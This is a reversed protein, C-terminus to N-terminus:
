LIASFKKAIDYRLSSIEVEYYPILNPNLKIVFNSLHPVNGRMLNVERFGRNKLDKSIESILLYNSGTKILEPHSANSWTYARKSDWLNIYASAADGSPTECIVMEGMGNRELLDIIRKFYQDSVPPKLNQKEFTMSFLSYYASLDFEKKIRLNTDTAKRIHRKAERSFSADNLKYLNLYYTYLINGRWGNWIFPRVDNFEPPNTFKVCDFHREIIASILAKSIEIHKQEQKRDSAKGDSPQLLVFGSYPTMNCTSTAMKFFNNATRYEFFSCGGILKEDEFCGIIKMKRDFIESSSLLWSSEQFITGHPSANVLSDWLKYDDKRLEKIEIDSMILELM